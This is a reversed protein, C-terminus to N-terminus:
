IDGEMYEYYDTENVFLMWHGVVFGMYGSQTFYGHM